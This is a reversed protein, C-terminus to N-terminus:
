QQLVAQLVCHWAHEFVSVPPVLPVQVLTVTPEASGLPVHIACADVVHPLSPLHAAAPAHWFHAEPVAHELTDPQLPEVSVVSKCHSPLPLQESSGIVDAHGFLRVQLVAM